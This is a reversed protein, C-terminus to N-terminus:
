EIDQLLGISFDKIDPIENNEFIYVIFDDCKDIDKDDISVKVRKNHTFFLELKVHSYLSLKKWCDINKKRCFTYQEGMYEIIFTHFPPPSEDTKFSLVLQLLKIQHKDV